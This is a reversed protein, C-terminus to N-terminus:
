QKKELKIECHVIYAPQGYRNDPKPNREYSKYTEKYTKKVTKYVGKTDKLAFWYADDLAKKMEYETPEKSEYYAYFESCKFILEDKENIVIKTGGYDSSRYYDLVFDKAFSDELPKGDEKLVHLYVIAWKDHGPADHGTYSYYPCSTSLIAFCVISLFLVFRRM